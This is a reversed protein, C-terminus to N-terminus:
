LWPLVSGTDGFGERELREEADRGGEDKWQDYLYDCGFPIPKPLSKNSGLDDPREKNQQTM